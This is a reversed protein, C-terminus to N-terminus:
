AVKTGNVAWVRILPISAALMETRFPATSDIRDPVGTTDWVHAVSTFSDDPLTFTADIYDQSEDAFSLWDTPAPTLATDPANDM